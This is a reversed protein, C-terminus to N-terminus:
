ATGAFANMHHRSQDPARGWAKSVPCSARVLCGDRCARDARVFARCAPVDYGTGTLARPPCATLCPAPCGKCPSPPAPPLDLRERFALAGRFSIWLGAEDHVLLGVPSPHCRGTRRAWAIFPAYPPGGFPYLAEAGIEDAFGGIVRVSWRDLPDPRGDRWEPSATLAQWFGGPEAPGLMLITGAGEPAGDGPVPHFGGMVELHPPALRM